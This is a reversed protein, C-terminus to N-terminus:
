NTFDSALYVLELNLGCFDENSLPNSKTLHLACKM